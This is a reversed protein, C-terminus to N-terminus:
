IANKLHNIVFSIGTILSDASEYGELQKKINEPLAKAEPLEPNYQVTIGYSIARKVIREYIINRESQEYEQRFAGWRALANRCRDEPVLPYAYNVPDAYDEENQPYDKPPTLHGKDERFKIGYKKERRQAAEHLKERESEEEQKKDAIDGEEHTAPEFNGGHDQCHKRAETENWTKIPYRYAQEVSGAEPKDKPKGYIVRYTKGNHKREGSGVINLTEPDKLRCSHENPYPDAGKLTDVGIGCLPYSCRGQWSGVAVHDILIDRKVYEYHQGKFEGSQPICDFFFGISVSRARGSKIDNLYEPSCRNKFFVLEAKIKDKEFRPNRVTGRILQPKSLIIEPPHEEVVWANLATFAAKEVESAPEYILMGDYDYVGERTIVAPVILTEDDEKIQLNDAEVSKLGYKRM